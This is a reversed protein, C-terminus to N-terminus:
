FTDHNKGIFHLIVGHLGAYKVAMGRLKYEDDYGAAFADQHLVLTANKETAAYAAKIAKCFEPLYHELTAELVRVRSEEEAPTVAPCDVGLVLKKPLHM